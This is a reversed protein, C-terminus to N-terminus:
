ETRKVTFTITSVVPAPAATQVTIFVSRESESDALLGTPVTVHINDLGGSAGSTISSIDARKDDFMVTVPQFNFNKGFLTVAKGAVGEPPDFM